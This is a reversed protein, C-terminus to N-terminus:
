TDKSDDNATVGVQSDSFQLLQAPEPEDDFRMLAILGDLGLIRLVM